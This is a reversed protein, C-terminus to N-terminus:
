IEHPQRQPLAADLRHRSEGRIAVTRRVTEPQLQCRQCSAWYRGHQCTLRTGGKFPAVQRPSTIRGSSVESM